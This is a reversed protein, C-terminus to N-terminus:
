IVRFPDLKERLGEPVPIPHNAQYDFYVVVSEVEAAVALDNLRSRIKQQLRISSTGVNAVQTTVTLENGFHVQNRFDIALRALILHGLKGGLDQFFRIRADEAYHAFASNNVHGLADTDVFRVQINTNHSMHGLMRNANPDQFSAGTISWKNEGCLFITERNYNQM